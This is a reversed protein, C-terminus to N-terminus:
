PSESWPYRINNFCQEMIVKAINGALLKNGKPTCHGFDGAFIDCFYKDYGEERVANKFLLENDVYIIDEDEGATKKLLEVDRMPYQVCIFKIGRRDLIEKCRQYNYGTIPNIRKFLIDTMESFRNDALDNKRLGEYCNALLGHAEVRGPDAEIAKKFMEEGESYMRKFLYIRGLETYIEYRGPGLELAKKLLGEARDYEKSESYSLALLPYPKTEDTHLTIAKEMIKRGEQPMSLDKYVWFLSSYTKPDSQNKEIVEELIEKAKVYEGKARYSMALKIYLEEKDETYEKRKMKLIISKYELHETILRILKYVRASCFFAKIKADPMDAARITDNNDNIGMMAIVMKPNYKDLNYELESLIGGTDIACKGKNIVSFRIGAGNQNLASELQSPYSDRGGVATTSEGICMIRYAGKQSLSFINRNEQISLFIFGGVRLGIELLIIGLCFGFVILGAKQIRRYIM